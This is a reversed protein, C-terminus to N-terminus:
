RPKIRKDDNDVMGSYLQDAIKSDGVTSDKQLEFSTIYSGANIEQNVSKISYVGTFMGLNGDPNIFKLFIYKGISNMDFVPDGLVGMNASILSSNMIVRRRFEQMMKRKENTSARLQRGTVDESFLLPAPSIYSPGGRMQKFVEKRKSLSSINKSINKGKNRLKKEKIKEKIKQQVNTTNKVITQQNKIKENIDALKVEEEKKEEEVPTLGSIGPTGMKMLTFLDNSVERFSFTPDFSVVDPFNVHWVDPHGPNFQHAVNGDADNHTAMEGGARYSYGQLIHNKGNDPDFITGVGPIPELFVVLIYPPSNDEINQIALEIKEVASLKGRTSEEPTPIKLKGMKETKRDFIIENEIVGVGTTTEVFNRAKVLDLFIELSDVAEDTQLMVCKAQLNTPAKGKFNTNSKLDASYEKKADAGSEGPHSRDWTPQDIWIKVHNAIKSFLSHWSENPGLIIDGAKIAYKEATVDYSGTNGSDSPMNSGEFHGGIQENNFGKIVYYESNLIDSKQDTPVNGYSINTKMSKFYKDFAHLCYEMIAWPHIKSEALLPTLEMIFNRFTGYYGYIEGKKDTQKLENRLNEHIDFFDKIPSNPDTSAYIKLFKNINKYNTADQGIAINRFMRGVNRFAGGKVVKKFRDVGKWDKDAKKLDGEIYNKVYAYINDKNAPQVESALDGRFFLVASQIIKLIYKTNKTQKYYYLFCCMDQINEHTQQTLKGGSKLNNKDKFESMYIAFALLTHMMQLTIGPTRGLYDYPLFHHFPEPFNLEKTGTLTLESVGEPTYTVNSDSVTCFLMRRFYVRKDAREASSSDALVEDISMNKEKYAWGYEIELTPSITTNQLYVFTAALFDIITQDVNTIVLVIENNKTSFKFSKFISSEAHGNTTQSPPLLDITHTSEFIGGGSIRIKASIYPALSDLFYVPKLFRPRVGTISKTQEVHKSVKEILKTKIQSINETETTNKAM